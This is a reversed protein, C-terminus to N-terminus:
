RRKKATNKYYIRTLGAILPSIFFLIIVGIAFNVLSYIVRLIALFFDNEFLNIDSVLQSQYSEMTQSKFESINKNLLKEYSLMRVQVLVDRMFGIRLFRSMVQLAIPLYGLAVSILAVKIIENVSSAELLNFANALAFTIMIDSPAIIIIGIIYLAFQKKNQTFLTKIEM